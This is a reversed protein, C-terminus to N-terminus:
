HGKPRLNLPRPTYFKEIGSVVFEVDAKTMEYYMPLRILRNSAYDTVRMKGSARGYRLGAPSSHLPIYHFIAHVGRKNLYNILSNREELSRTLIYFIHGNCNGGDQETPLKFKGAIALPMLKQRYHKHIARRKKLIKKACQLQAYLFAAILESPLYSSGIDVWTYKDVEGRFFKKRDTGKEWIIEAKETLKEDNLILAGGEGSIVNKTEHFSLCGAHGITGLFKNNYSSMLGQAADEIVLLGYKNAIAMIKDMSCPYGAYHVPVIAKTKPTVARKILTEDINLTDERIDIFVPVAGRLVFANATSVFTFSPMIIEDGAKLGFLVVAMEIAATGSTTLFAKKCGLNDELWRHCLKTFPGDGSLHANDMVAKKIYSLEKGVIFPKNFPIKKMNIERKVHM